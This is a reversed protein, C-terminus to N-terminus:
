DPLAALQDRTARKPNTVGNAELARWWCEGELKLEGALANDAAQSALMMGRNRATGERGAWEYTQELGALYAAKIASKTGYTM